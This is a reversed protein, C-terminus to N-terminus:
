FKRILSRIQNELHQLFHRVAALKVVESAFDLLCLGIQVRVLLVTRESHDIAHVQRALLLDTHGLQHLVHGFVVLPFVKDVGVRVSVTRMEDNLAAVERSLDHPYRVVDHKFVVM